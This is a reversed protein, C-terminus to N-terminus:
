AAVKWTKGNVIYSITSKCLNFREAIQVGSWGKSALERIQLATEHNIKRSGFTPKRGLVRFSHLNNEAPTVLELNSVANNGRDGDIHNIHLRPDLPGVHARYVIRHASLQKGSRGGFRVRRYGNLPQLVDCRRWDHSPQGQRTRLSYIEGNRFVQFNGSSLLVEILADNTAYVFGFEVADEL